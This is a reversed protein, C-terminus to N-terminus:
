ISLSPEFNGPHRATLSWGKPYIKREPWIPNLVSTQHIRNLYGANPIAAADESKEDSIFRVARGTLTPKRSSLSVGVEIFNDSLGL